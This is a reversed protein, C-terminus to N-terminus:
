EISSDRTITFAVNTGSGSAPVDGTGSWGLLVRRTEGTEPPIAVFAEVRDGYACDATGAAPMPTGFASAVTLTVRPRWDVDDLFAADQGDASLLGREYSWRVVHDGAPIAFSVTKWNEVRTEQEIQVGDLYARVYDGRGAPVKWKFSLTGPGSVATEVSSTGGASIAGSKLAWGDAATADEVMTWQTETGVPTRSVPMGGPACFVASDSVVFVTVSRPGDAPVVVVPSSEYEDYAVTVGNTDGLLFCVYHDESPTFALISEEGGLWTWIIEEKEEADGRIQITQRVDWCWTLGFADQGARFTVNTELLWEGPFLCGGFRYVEGDIWEDEPVEVSCTVTQGWACLLRDGVPHARGRASHVSIEDISYGYAIECTEPVALSVALDTGYYEPLYLTSLNRCGRFVETGLTPFSPPIAVTTLGICGAFAENGIISVESDMQFWISALGTCGIFAGNGITGTHAPFVISRLETCNAFAYDGITCANTPLAVSALERCGAFAGSAIGRICPRNLDLDAPLGNTRGVIWGDVLIVGPITETDFLEECRAFADHGVFRTEIPITVATLGTCGAFARDAVGRFGALDLAGSPPAACGVAWDGVSVIGTLANTQLSATGEFAQYGLGLLNASLADLALGSCNSFAKAGIRLADPAAATLRACNKFAEPGINLLGSLSDFNLQVCDRFSQYEISLVSAPLRSRGPFVNWSPDGPQSGSVTVSMGQLNTCGVFAQCGIKKLAFPNDPFSGNEWDVLCDFTVRGLTEDDSFARFGINRCHRGDIRQTRPPEGPGLTRNAFAWSAIGRFGSETPDQENFVSGICWGSVFNTDALSTCGLFAEAGVGKVSDPIGYITSQTDDQFTIGGDTLYRAYRFAQSAIGRAGTLDVSTTPDPSSSTNPSKRTQVVWGDVLVVNSDQLSVSGGDIKIVQPSEFPPYISYRPEQYGFARFGLNELSGPLSVSIPRNESRPNSWFARDGVSKVGEPVVIRDLPCHGNSFMFARDGIVEVSSPISVSSLGYCNYFACADIEIVGFQIDATELKACGAFAYQGIKRVSGPIVVSELSSCGSFTRGKIEPIGDPIAISALGACSAFAYAGISTVTDPITVSVLERCNSFAHRGIDTVGDPITVSTLKSCDSFANNGISKVSCTGFASPITIDGITNTSIAPSLSDGISAEGNSVTYTWEIGDVIATDARAPGAGVALLASASLAFRGM